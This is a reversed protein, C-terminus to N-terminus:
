LLLFQKGNRLVQTWGAKSHPEHQLIKLKIHINQLHQKDEKLYIVKRVVTTPIYCIINWIIWIFSKLNSNMSIIINKRFKLNNYMM